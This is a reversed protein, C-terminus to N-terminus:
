RCLLEREQARLTKEQVMDATRFRFRSGALPVSDAITSPVWTLLTARCCYRWPQVGVRDM